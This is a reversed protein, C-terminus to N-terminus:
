YGYHLCVLDNWKAPEFGKLLGLCPSYRRYDDVEIEKELIDIMDALPIEKPTKGYKDKFIAEHGNDVFYLKTEPFADIRNLMNGSVCCLNFSCLCEAWVRGEDESIYDSKECVYIRSEYGM